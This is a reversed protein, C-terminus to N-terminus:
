IMDWENAGVKLLQVLDYQGALALAGGFKPNVTVGSGAAVTVLGTGAQRVAICTKPPYPASANPPVTVTVPSSSTCRVYGGQDDWMLTDTTGSVTRISAPGLPSYTHAMGNSTVQIRQGPSAQRKAEFLAIILEAWRSLPKANPNPRWADPATATLLFQLDTITVTQGSAIDGGNDFYVLRADSTGRPSAVPDVLTFFDPDASAINNWKFITPTTTIAFVQDAVDSLPLGDITSRYGVRLTATGSDTAAMFSTSYFPDQYVKGTVEIKEGAAGGTIVIAQGSEGFDTFAESADIGVKSAGTLPSWAPFGFLNLDITWLFVYLDFGPETSAPVTPPDCDGLPM